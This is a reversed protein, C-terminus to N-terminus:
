VYLRVAAADYRVNDSDDGLPISKTLRYDAADVLQLGEGQGNAVAIVKADPAVAIGQPEHFGPLSKIDTNGKLDLVEVTNNGLAAVFLRQGAGDFALHDIRGEVRPLDITRVLSLPEQGPTSQLSILAVAWVVTMMRM